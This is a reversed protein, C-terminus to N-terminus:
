TKEYAEYAANCFDKYKQSSLYETTVQVNFEKSPETRKIM